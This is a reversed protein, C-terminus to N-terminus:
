LPPKSVVPEVLVEIRWEREEIRGTLERSGAISAPGEASQLGCEQM